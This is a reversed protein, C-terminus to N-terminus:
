SFLFLTVKKWSKYFVQTLAIKKHADFWLLYFLIVCVIKNKSEQKDHVNM